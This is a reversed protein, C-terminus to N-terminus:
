TSPSSTFKLGNAVLVVADVILTLASPILDIRLELPVANCAPSKVTPM